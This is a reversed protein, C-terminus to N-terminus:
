VVLCVKWGVSCGVKLQELQTIEEFTEWHQEALDWPFDSTQTLDGNTVHSVDEGYAVSGDSCSEHKLQGHRRNNKNSKKVQPRMNKEVDISTVFMRSPLEGREQKESPAALRAPAPADIVMGSSTANTVSNQVRSSSPADSDSFVIKPPLLVIAQKFGKKKNKNRLTSMMVEGKGENSPAQSTAAAAFEANMAM